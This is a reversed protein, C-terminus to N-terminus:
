RGADWPARQPGVAGPRAKVRSGGGHVESVDGDDGVDVVALGGQHVGQELLAADEARVLLVALADHVRVLELPLAADGDQGLVGRDVVVVGLDVDHVGRAVGVEAALHLAGELHHVAHEQEHVGGLPRQGLGAVHQALRELGAQGRHHHDVLDVAGVGAGALDQVLDVVEEDVEVGGLVLEVERDEVRVRLAPMAFDAGSPGPSSRRGSKSASTEATGSGGPEASPTRCSSM